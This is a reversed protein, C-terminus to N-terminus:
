LASPSSAARTRRKWDGKTAARSCATCQRIPSVLRSSSAATPSALQAMFMTVARVTFFVAAALYIVFLLVARRELLTNIAWQMLVIGLFGFLIIQLWPPLFAGVPALPDKYHFNVSPTGAPRYLLDYGQIWCPSADPLERDLGGVFAVFALVDALPLLRLDRPRLMSVFSPEPIMQRQATQGLRPTANKQWSRSTSQPASLVDRSAVM